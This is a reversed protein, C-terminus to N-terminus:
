RRRTSSRRLASRCSAVLVYQARRSYKEPSDTPWRGPLHPGSLDMSVEGGPKAADPQRRHARRKVAGLRCESCEPMFKRHGGKKHEALEYKTIKAAIAQKSAPQVSGLEELSNVLCRRMTKIVKVPFEEPDPFEHIRAVTMLEKVQSQTLHPCHRRWIIPFQLGTPVHQVHPDESHWNFDGTLKWRKSWRGWPIIPEVEPYEDSLYVTDGIQVGSAEGVGLSVTAPKADAPPVGNWEEPYRALAVSAGSDLVVLLEGEETKKPKRIGACSQRRVMGESSSATRGTGEPVNVSVCGWM